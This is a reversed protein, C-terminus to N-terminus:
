KGTFMEGLDEATYTGGTRAALRALALAVTRNVRDRIAPWWTSNGGYPVAKREVRYVGSRVWGAQHIYGHREMRLSVTDKNWRMMPNALAGSAVHVRGPQDRGPQWPSGYPDVGAAFQDRYLSEVEDAGERVVRRFAAEGLGALDVPMSVFLKAAANKEMGM